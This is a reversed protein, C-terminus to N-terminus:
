KSYCRCVLYFLCFLGKNKRFNVIFGDYILFNWGRLFFSYKAITNRFNNLMAGSTVICNEFVKLFNEMLYELFYTKLTEFFEWLFMRLFLKGLFNGFNVSSSNIFSVQSYRNQIKLLKVRFLHDWQVCWRFDVYM